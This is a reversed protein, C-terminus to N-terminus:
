VKRVTLNWNQWKNKNGTQEASEDVYNIYHEATNKGFEDILRSYEDDSLKVWGFQGRKHKVPAPADAGGSTSNEKSENAKSQKAKSQPTEAGTEADSVDPKQATEAASVRNVYDYSSKERKKLVTAARTKIGNSTLKGTKEYYKSDFAGHRLLSRLISDYEIESIHLKQQIVERMEQGMETASVDISLEESRYCYELHVFYFAYAKAGFRLISSELKPDTTADCDHPFYDLGKKKPRAITIVEV